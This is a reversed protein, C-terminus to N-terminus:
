LIQCLPKAVFDRVFMRPHPVTLIKTKIVQDGYLLIDLDIIRPGFRLTNKRGLDQEIKKLQKLLNLPSLKTQIKLASNLYNRQGAPGGVPASNFIKAVKLIRTDKLTKIKKIAQSINKRRSGLNTGLGLYCVVM